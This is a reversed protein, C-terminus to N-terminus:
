KRAGMDRTEVSCNISDKLMTIHLDGGEKCARAPRTNGMDAQKGQLEDGLAKSSKHRGM